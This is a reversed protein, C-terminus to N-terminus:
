RKFSWSTQLQGFTTRIQVGYTSYRFKPTMSSGIFYVLDIAPRAIRSLQLDLTKIDTAKGSEGHRNFTHKCSM